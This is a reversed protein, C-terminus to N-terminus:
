LRKVQADMEQETKFYLWIPDGRKLFVEDRGDPKAAVGRSPAVTIKLLLRAFSSGNPHKELAIVTGAVTDKNIKADPFCFLPAGNEAVPSHALVLVGVKKHIECVVKKAEKGAM